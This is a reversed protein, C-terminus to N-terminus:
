VLMLVQIYANYVLLHVYFIDYSLVYRTPVSCIREARVAPLELLIKSTHMHSWGWALLLNWGIM